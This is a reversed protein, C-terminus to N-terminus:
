ADTLIGGMTYTLGVCMPAAYFPPAEIPKAAAGSRPPVQGPLGGERCARNYEAITGSLAAPDIKLQDALGELTNAQLLTGGERPLNPNAPILGVRGAGEWIASDFVVVASLPDDLRAVANAMYVGGRGEDAFRRGDPGVVIAAAVVADLYPYPWLNDNELADI